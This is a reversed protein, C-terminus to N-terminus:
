PGSGARLVDISSTRNAAEFYRGAKMDELFATQWGAAGRRYRISGDTQVEIQERFERELAPSWTNLEWAEFLLRHKELKRDRLLYAQYDRLHTQNLQDPPRHFHRAFREVAQIIVIRQSLARTSEETVDCPRDPRM